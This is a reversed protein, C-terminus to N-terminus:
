KVEDLTKCTSLIWALVQWSAVSKDANEPTIDSANSGKKQGLALDHSASGPEFPPQPLEPNADIGAFM